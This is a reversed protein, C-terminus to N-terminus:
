FFVVIEGRENRKLRLSRWLEKEEEVRGSHSSRSDGIDRHWRKLAKNISCGRESEPGKTVFSMFSECRARNQQAAGFIVMEGNTGRRRDAESDSDSNDASSRHYEIAKLQKRQSEPSEHGGTRHRSSRDSREFRVNDSSTGNYRHVRHRKHNDRTQSRGQDSSSNRRRNPGENHAAAPNVFAAGVLSMVKGARGKISIGPGNPNDEKTRRSRKLPSAPDDRRTSPRSRHDRERGMGKDQRAIPPFPFDTENSTLRSLGGTLGSHVLAMPTEDELRSRDQSVDPMPTDYELLAGNAHEDTNARKRKTSGSDSRTHSLPPPREKRELKARTEKAAPTMFHLSLDSNNAELYPRPNVPATGYSFGQEEYERSHISEDSARYSKHLNEKGESYSKGNATSTSSRKGANVSTRSSRPSEETVLYDFVNM